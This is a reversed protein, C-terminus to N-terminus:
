LLSLVVTASSNPYTPDLAEGNVINTEYKTITSEGELTKSRGGIKKDGIIHLTGTWSIPLNVIYGGSAM